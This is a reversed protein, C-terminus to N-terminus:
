LLEHQTVVKDYVERQTGLTSTMRPKNQPEATPMGDTDKELVACRRQETMGAMLSRQKRRSSGTRSRGSVSAKDNQRNAQFCQGRREGERGGNRERQRDREWLQYAPLTCVDLASM